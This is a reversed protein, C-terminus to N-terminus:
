IRNNAKEFNMSIILLYLTKVHPEPGNRPKESQEYIILFLDESFPVMAARGMRQPLINKIRM